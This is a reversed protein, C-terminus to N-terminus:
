KHLHHKQWIITQRLGYPFPKPTFNFARKAKQCNLRVHFGIQHTTLSKVNLRPNVNKIIINATTKISQSKGSGIIYIGTESSVSTLYLARAAERTSLYDRLLEPTNVQLPKKNLASKIFNPIARNITDGPGYLVTFRLITLPIKQTQCFIQAIQEGALKTAGYYTRPKTPSNEDLVTKNDNGGGYVDISSVYIIKKCNVGIAELLNLTGLINTNVATRPDDDNATQPMHAAAHILVDYSDNILSLSKKDTIDGHAYHVKLGSKVSKSRTLLTIDVNHNLFENVIASGFFGNGGALFIKM